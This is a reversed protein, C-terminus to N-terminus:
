RANKKRYAARPNDKNWAPAPGDAITILGLAAMRAVRAM